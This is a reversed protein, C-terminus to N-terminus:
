AAVNVINTVNQLAPISLIESWSSQIHESGTMVAGPLNTGSAVNGLLSFQSFKRWGLKISTLLLSSVQVEIEGVESGQARPVVVLQHLTESPISTEPPHLKLLVCSLRLLLSFSTKLFFFFSPLPPPLPLVWAHLPFGSQILHNFLLYFLLKVSFLINLHWILLESHKLM